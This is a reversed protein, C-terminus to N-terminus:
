VSALRAAPKDGPPASATLPASGRKAAAVEFPAPMLSSEMMDFFLAGAGSGPEFTFYAIESKAERRVLGIARATRRAAPAAAPPAAEFRARLIM